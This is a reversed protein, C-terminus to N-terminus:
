RPYVVFAIVAIATIYIVNLMDDVLRQVIPLVAGIIYAPIVFSLKKHVGICRFMEFLCMVSVVALAIPFVWTGSLFLAPILVCLAVLATIIRKLM